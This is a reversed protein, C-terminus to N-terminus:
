CTSMLIDGPTVAYSKVGKKTVIRGDITEAHFVENADGQVVRRYKITKAPAAAASQLYDQQQQFSVQRNQTRFLRQKM